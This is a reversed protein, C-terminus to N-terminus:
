FAGVIAAPDKRFAFCFLPWRAADTQGARSDLRQLRWGFLDATHSWPDDDCGWPGIEERRILLCRFMMQCRGSTVSM